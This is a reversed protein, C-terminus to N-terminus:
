NNSLFEIVQHHEFGCTDFTGSGMENDGDGHADDDSPTKLVVPLITIFLQLAYSLEGGTIL